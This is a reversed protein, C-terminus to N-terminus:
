PLDLTPRNTPLGLVAIVKERDHNLADHGMYRGHMLNRDLNLDNGPTIDM